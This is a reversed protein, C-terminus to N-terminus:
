YPQIEVALFKKYIYDPIREKYKLVSILVDAQKFMKYEEFAEEPTNWESLKIQEDTGSLQIAGYYKDTKSNYRVGLPLSTEPTQGEKYSKKCNSLLTNLGQPLICCTEPSYIHSGNGFLDKDVAMSEGGGSYYYHEFYWKVFASPNDQWEQCMAADAYHRGIRDINKTEKCRTKIADYHKYASMSARNEYEIYEQEFGLEQWTAKGNCLYRYKM